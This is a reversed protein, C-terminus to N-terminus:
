KALDLFRSAFAPGRAEDEHKFFIFAEGWAQQRVWKLWRKLNANEYKPLRLRLYGWEATAVKPVEPGDESETICLAVGRRRLVGFVEDDFWSDHRFEFAIPQRKPILKLFERLRPLDKKFNPPLGFLLPGLRRRLAGAERLFRAVPEGADKLRKFHTISQPAKLTFQFGPPVQSAWEQMVAAKPMRYFTNNIEVTGFREAYFELMRAAPLDKPYFPGKWEKYSYGSTGVHLTPSNQAV